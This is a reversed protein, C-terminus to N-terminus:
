EPFEASGGLRRPDQGYVVAGSRADVYAYARMRRVKPRKWEKDEGCLYTYRVEWALASALVRTSVVVLRAARPPGTDDIPLFALYPNIDHVIALAERGGLRPPDGLGDGPGPLASYFGTGHHLKMSGCSLNAACGDPTNAEVGRLYGVSIAGNAYTKYVRDGVLTPKEGPSFGLETAHQSVLTMLPPASEGPAWYGFRWWTAGEFSFKREVHMGTWPSRPPRFGLETFATAGQYSRYEATPETPAIKHTFDLRAPIGGVEVNVCPPLTGSPSAPPADRMPVSPVDAFAARSVSFLGCSVAVASWTRMTSRM